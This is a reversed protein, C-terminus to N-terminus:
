SGSTAAADPTADAPPTSGADNAPPTGPKPGSSPRAEPPWVYAARYLEALRLDRRFESRAKLDRERLQKQVGLDAFETPHSYGAVTLVPDGPQHTRAPFIQDVSRGVMMQVLQGETADAMLGAGVFQGDRFVTYRDAIRFVEDFKHSIFLIAKGKARLKEVLAAPEPGALTLGFMEHLQSPVDAIAM